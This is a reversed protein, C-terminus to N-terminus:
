GEGGYFPALERDRSRLWDELQVVDSPWWPDSVERQAETDALQDAGDAPTDYDHFAPPTILSEIWTCVHNILRWVLGTM